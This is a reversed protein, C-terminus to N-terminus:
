AAVALRKWINEQLEEFAALDADVPPLRNDDEGFLMIYGSENLLWSYSNYEEPHEENRGPLPDLVFEKLGTLEQQFATLVQSWSQVNWTGQATQGMDITCSILKLSQLTVAHHLVLWELCTPDVLAPNMINHHFAFWVFHLDRLNPMATEKWFSGLVPGPNLVNSSLSTLTEQPTQAFFPIDHEYFDMLPEYYYFNDESTLVVQMYVSELGKLFAKFGASNNIQTPLCVLNYIESKKLSPLAESEPAKDKNYEEADQYQNPFLLRLSWLNPLKSLHGFISVTDEVTDEELEVEKPEEAFNKQGGDTADTLYEGHSAQLIIEKVHQMLESADFISIMADAGGKKRSIDLVRFTRPTIVGHLVKCTTHLALLDSKSGIDNLISNLLELPVHQPFVATEM